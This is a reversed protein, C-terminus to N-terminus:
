VFWGLLLLILAPATFFMFLEGSQQLSEENRQEKEFSQVWRVIRDIDRDHACDAAVYLGGLDHALTQLTAQHLRSMVVEGQKNRIHGKLRGDHDYDPIPAGAVTGVGVTCVHVSLQQARKSIAALDHSFDEGDTVVVVMKNRSATTELLAISKELAADLATTGGGALSQEDIADLFLLFAEKDATLPCQVLASGSFVLLACREAHLANVLAAIKRKACALRSPKSDQALMSRSIDLAIVVDRGHSQVIEPLPYQLRAMALLILAVVAGALVVRWLLKKQSFRQLTQGCLLSQVQRKYLFLWYWLLLGCPILLVAWWSGILVMEIM